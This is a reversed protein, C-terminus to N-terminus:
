GNGLSRAPQVFFLLFGLVFLPYCKFSRNMNIRQSTYSFVTPRFPFHRHPDNYARDSFSGLGISGEFSSNLPCVGPYTGTWRSSTFNFEDCTTDGRSSVVSITVKATVFIRLLEHAPM